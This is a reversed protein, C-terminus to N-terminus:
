RQSVGRNRQAVSEEFAIRNTNQQPLDRFMPAYEATEAGARILARIIASHDGPALAYFLPKKGDADSVNPDAGAALLVEAAQDQHEFMAWVLPTAQILSRDRCNVNAGLALLRKIEPINGTGSANILERDHGRM